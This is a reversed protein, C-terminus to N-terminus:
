LWFGIILLMIITVAFVIYATARGAKLSEGYGMDMFLHRIGAFLHYLLAAIFIFLLTIPIPSTLIDHLQQFGDPTALSKNLAWLLVPILLFLIVGSIRHLVSAIAMVPYRYKLVGQFIPRQKTNM